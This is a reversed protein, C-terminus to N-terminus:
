CSKKKGKKAKAANNLKSSVKVKTMDVANPLDNPTIIENGEYTVKFGGTYGQERAIVKIKAIAEDRTLAPSVTSNQDWTM